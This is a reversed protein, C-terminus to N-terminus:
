LKSKKGGKVGTVERGSLLFDPYEWESGPSSSGSRHWAGGDVVGSILLLSRLLSGICSLDSVM